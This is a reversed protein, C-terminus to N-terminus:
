PRHIERYVRELLTTYFDIDEANLKRHRTLFDTLPTGTERGVLVGDQMTVSERVFASATDHCNRCEEAFRPPTAAQALLMEYIGDVDQGKLYHNELFLKMDEAHHPGALTGDTAELNKRAFDASHGHCEECKNDWLWHLNVGAAAAPLTGAITLLVGILTNRCVRNERISVPM